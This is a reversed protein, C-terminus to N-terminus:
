GCLISCGPLWQFAESSLALLLREIPLHRTPPMVSLLWGFQILPFQQGSPAAPWCMNWSGLVLSSTCQWLWAGSFGCAVPAPCLCQHLQQHKPVPQLCQGCIFFWALLLWRVAPALHQLVLKGWLLLAFSTCEEGGTGRWCWRCVFNLM